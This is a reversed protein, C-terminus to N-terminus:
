RVVRAVVHAIGLADGGRPSLAYGSGESPTSDTSRVDSAFTPSGPTSRGEHEGEALVVVGGGVGDHDEGGGGGGRLARLPGRPARLVADEDTEDGRACGSITM